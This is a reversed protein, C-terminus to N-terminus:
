CCCHLQTYTSTRWRRRRYHRTAPNGLIEDNRNTQTTVPYIQKCSKSASLKLVAHKSSLSYFNKHHNLFGPALSKIMEKDTWENNCLGRALKGPHQTPIKIVSSRNLLRVMYGVLRGQLRNPAPAFVARELYMCFFHCWQNIEGTEETRFNRSSSWM